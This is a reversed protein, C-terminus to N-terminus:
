EGKQSRSVLISWRPDRPGIIDLTWDNGVIGGLTPDGEIAVVDTGKM